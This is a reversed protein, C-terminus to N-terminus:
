GVKRFEALLYIEDSGTNAARGLGDGARNASCYYQVGVNAQNALTFRGVLHGTTGVAYTSLAHGTLGDLLVQSATHDYVRLKYSNVRFFMARVDCEYTGAPLTVKNASVTAINSPDAEKTNIPRDRWAGKTATGGNAGNAVKYSVLVYAGGAKSDVYKKRALQNDETPDQDPGVPIRDFEVVRNASHVYLVALWGYNAHHQYLRLDHDPDTRHAFQWGWAGTEDALTLTSYCYNDGVGYLWAEARVDHTVELKSGYLGDEFTKVDSVTQNGTLKVCNAVENSLNAINSSHNASENSLEQLDLYVKQHLEELVSAHAKRWARQKEEDNSDKGIPIPPLKAERETNLVDPM